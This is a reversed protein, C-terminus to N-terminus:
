LEAKLNNLAVQSHAELEEIRNEMALIRNAQYEILEDM